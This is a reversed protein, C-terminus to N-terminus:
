PSHRSVFPGKKMRIAMDYETYHRYIGEMWLLVPQEPPSQYVVYPRVNNHDSDHTVPYSTWTGESLLERGEIEFKGDTDRSLFIQRPNGPNLVIGGSYHAERVMDGQRLSVMWSGSNVIEHDVWRDNQWFAYHYIHDAESPFRAYTIFPIGEHLAIDWIWGRVNSPKADYVKNVSAIAVPLEDMQVLPQGSTQHFTGNQYYMHFVSVDSGIKPHGDTFVFDIRAQHDTAVKLYPPNKRGENDLFIIDESWTQGDDDSYKLYQWWHEFSRTPGVKRGILYIRGNEESLRVPNAYTYRYEDTEAAIIKESEWGSIDEPNKSKRLFVNGNHENYFALLRGDPLILISPVNHDDVELTDHLIFSDNQGSVLDRAGICVDGKSNIYGWYIKEKEGRYYIARPDSFWCWVGDETLTEPKAQVESDTEATSASRCGLVALFYLCSAMLFYQILRMSFHRIPSNAVPSNLIYFISHLIIFNVGQIKGQDASM